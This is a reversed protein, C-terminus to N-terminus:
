NVFNWFIGVRIVMGPYPYGPAAFNHHRFGFSNTVSVANLNEARIFARFNRIRFHLYAAVDPRNNITISDQFYFAGLPSSYGDAKFPSHYKIELGMSITLNQFGLKGEYGIRNRTFVLPMNLPVDGTKKQLYIDTYWVWNKGFRFKKELSVMLLNFLASEQEPKIYDKYYTYNSVLFYNGTIKAKLGPHYYSASLHSTNEKNFTKPIDLYFSSRSDFVFSPTRNVNRFGLEIYSQKKGSFRKLDISAHYDGSNLGNIFFTGAAAMDWKKNKTKNRYEAHVSLNYFSKSQNSFEGKLNQLAIGAKFFQQLNKADPYQYISFDNVVENWRDKLKITDNLGSAPFKFVNKYYVTDADNDFFIFKYHSMRFTHEFRLRPYFLPIVISDKVLSDKKGLDYQQTMVLNFDSYKNGTNIKSSFFNRDFAVDGGIQTPVNFRDDYIPDNLYDEDNKIGGNEESQM